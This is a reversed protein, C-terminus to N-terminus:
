GGKQTGPTPVPWENFGPIERTMKKQQLVDDRRLRRLLSTSVDFNTIWNFTGQQDVVTEM